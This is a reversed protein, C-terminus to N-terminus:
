NNVRMELQVTTGKGPISDIRVEGGAAKARQEMNQLGNGMRASHRDFGIGDDKVMLEIWDNGTSICILAHKAQSYKACNNVAEKFILYLDRRQTMSLIFGPEKTPFDFEGHINKGDLMDAGYRKMRIFLNQLDDYRPNINWVIDSLSESIRQIDESAKALYEKSKEPQTINRRALENLININSLSSGIDDHLNQSIDNRMLLLSKQQELKRKLQYRNIYTLGLLLLLGIGAILLNRMTRQNKLQKEHMLNEKETLELQQANTKGLLMQKELEEGQQRLKIDQLEQSKSLLDIENQKQLAMATNGAIVAKQKEIELTKIRQAANLRTIENDKKETEYRTTIEAISSKTTESVISDRYLIYKRYYEYAAPYNKKSSHYNALQAYFDRLNVKDNMSQLLALSKDFYSNASVSDNNLGYMTGVSMYRRALMSPEKRSKELLSIAKMEFDLAEVPKKNASYLNAATVYSHIIRAEQKSQLAYKICQDLYKEAEDNDVGTYFQSINCCGISLRAIDGTKERYALSKKAYEIAKPREDMTYYVTSLNSYAIGLEGYKGPFYKEYINIAQILCIAQKRIDGMRGWTYGLDNLALATYKGPHDSLYFQLAKGFLPAAEDFRNSYMKVQAMQMWSIATILSDKIQQGIKQVIAANADAKDLEDKDIYIDAAEILAFAHGKKFNKLKSLEEAKHCYYLASDYNSETFLDEAKDIWSFIVLSDSPSHSTQTRGTIIFLFLVVPLLLAKRFVTEM